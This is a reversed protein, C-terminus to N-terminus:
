YKDEHTGGRVCWLHRAGSKGSDGTTGDFFRVEWAQTPLFAGRVDTTSSWYASEFLGGTQVNQFPHGPPLAPGPEPVAPDVLSALEEIMPLHWGLRGGVQRLWCTRVADEWTRPTTEPSHEWVLGTENDRVAAGGFDTLVTFRQAAPLTSDWNQTSTASSGGKTPPAAGASGAMFALRVLGISLVLVGFLTVMGVRSAQANRMIDEQTTHSRSIDCRHLPRCQAVVCLLAIGEFPPLHPFRRAQLSNSRM